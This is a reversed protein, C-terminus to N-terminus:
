NVGDWGWFTLFAHYFLPFIHFLLLVPPFIIYGPFIAFRELFCDHVFHYLVCLCIYYFLDCYKIGCLFVSLICSIWGLFFYWYFFPGVAAAQPGLFVKILSSFFCGNILSNGRGLEQTRAYQTHTHTHARTAQGAVCVCVCVSTKYTVSICPSLSAKTYMHLYRCASTRTRTRTHTLPCYM